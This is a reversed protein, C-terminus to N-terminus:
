RIGEILLARRVLVIGAIQMVLAIMLLAWGTASAFFPTLFGPSILSFLLVLVIPMASVIRASLEAQATQVRLSRRLALEGKVSDAAADLIQKISGGTQHQIDLAVVVFSMENAIGASQLGQLVEPIAAGAELDHSASSFLKGLAGEVDHSVQQFTQQLTYGSGFCASMSELAEPISEQLEHLQKARANSALADLAVLVGISVVPLCVMSRSIAASTLALVSTFVLVLTLLAEDALDVGKNTCVSQLKRVYASAHPRALLRRAAPILWTVGNRMYWRAIAPITLREGMANCRRSWVSLLERVAVDVCLFATILGIGCVLLRTEM